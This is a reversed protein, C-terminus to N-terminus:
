KIYFHEQQMEFITFKTPSQMVGCLDLGSFM